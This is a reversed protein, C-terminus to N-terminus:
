GIEAALWGGFERLQDRTEPLRRHVREVAAVAEEGRYRIGRLEKQLADIMDPFLCDSYIHIDDVVGKDTDLYVDVMGWEFKASLHLAFRPSTGFRWNWDRMQEYYQNLSPIDKLSEYDLSELPCEARYHEFFEAIIAESLNEHCIEPNFEALNAVRSKVSVIGKAELKKPNPTLYESLKGLNARTLLTGHHFARDACERFASGSVKRGEVLIDNRGSPRACVGLRGIADVIIHTNVEKDYQRKGSLFTFNTNGLDHFVAGGGSQRRALKTGDAEMKPLNCETWPNQCRGIVVTNENRWLYLTQCEPDMERFIWDETALNFWPDHTGSLFVRLKSDAM